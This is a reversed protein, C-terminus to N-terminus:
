KNVLRVFKIDADKAMVLAQSEAGKSDLAIIPRKIFKHAKSVWFLGIFNTPKPFERDKYPRTTLKSLKLNQM